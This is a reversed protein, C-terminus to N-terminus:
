IPKEDEAGDKTRYTEAFSRGDYGPDDLPIDALKVPAGGGSRSVKAAVAALEAEILGSLPIPAPGIGALYPLSTELLSRYLHRNDVQFHAVDTQTAITAYFPIHQKTPGVGILGRRGDAWVIEVQQQGRTGLHRVSEMGAGFLGHLLSYAHIGYNFEDVGCGACAYVTEEPSPHESLWQQVERCVRLSSGGTIRIGRSEWELLRYLDRANGCLPKDILIAKGREVFPLARATHVDWNCSHIVAIDVDDAMDELSRYVQGADHKEAFRHAYGQPHVTGSDYVGAPEYGLSRIIPVWNGPHSTDLDVLGIRPTKM